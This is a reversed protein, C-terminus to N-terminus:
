PVSAASYVKRPIDKSLILDFERPTSLQVENINGNQDPLRVKDM